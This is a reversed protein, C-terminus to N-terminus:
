ALIAVLRDQVISDEVSRELAVSYTVRLNSDYQRIVRQVDASLLVPNAWTRVQLDPCQSLNQQIPLYVVYPSDGRLSSYSVDRAM